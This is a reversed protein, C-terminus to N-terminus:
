EYLNNKSSNYFCLFYYIINHVAPCYMKFKDTYTGTNTRWFYFLHDLETIIKQYFFIYSDTGFIKSVLELYNLYRFICYNSIGIRSASKILIIICILFSMYDYM